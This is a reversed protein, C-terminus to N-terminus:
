LGCKIKEISWKKGEITGTKDQLIVSLYKSGTSTTMVNADNVLYNESNIIEKEHLDKIM